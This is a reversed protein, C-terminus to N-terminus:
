DMGACDTCGSQCTCSAPRVICGDAAKACVTALCTAGGLLSDGKGAEGLLLMIYGLVQALCSFMEVQLLGVAQQPPESGRHHARLRKHSWAGRCKSCPVFFGAKGVGGGREGVVWGCGVCMRSWPSRLLNVCGSMQHQLYEPAPKHLAFIAQPCLSPSAM